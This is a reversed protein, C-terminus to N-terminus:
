KAIPKIRKKLLKNSGSCPWAKDENFYPSDIYLFVLERKKDIPLKTLDVKDFYELNNKVLKYIYNSNRKFKNDDYYKLLDSTRDIIADVLSDDISVLDYLDNENLRSAISKDQNYLAKLYNLAVTPNDKKLEYYNELLNNSAYMSFMSKKFKLPLEKYSFHRYLFNLVAPSDSFRDMDFSSIYEPQMDLLNCVYLENINFLYDLINKVEEKNFYELHINDFDLLTSNKDIYDIIYKYNSKLVDNKDKYIPLGYSIAIDIVEDTIKDKPLDYIRNPFMKLFFMNM